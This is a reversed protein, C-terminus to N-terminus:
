THQVNENCVENEPQPATQQHPVMSFNIRHGLLDINANEVTDKLIGVIMKLVNRYIKREVADPILKSNIRSDKLYREVISNIVEEEATLVDDDEYVEEQITPQEDKKCKKRSLYNGM